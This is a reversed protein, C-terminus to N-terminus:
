AIASMPGKKFEVDALASDAKVKTLRRQDIPEAPRAVAVTKQILRFFFARIDPDHRIPGLLQRTGATAPPALSCCLNRGPKSCCRDQQSAADSANAAFETM